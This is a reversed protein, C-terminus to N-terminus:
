VVVEVLNLVALGLKVKLCPPTKVATLPRLVCIMNLNLFSDNKSPSQENELKFLFYQANYKETSKRLIKALHRTLSLIESRVLRNQGSLLIKFSM